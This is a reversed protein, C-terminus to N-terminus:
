RNMVYNLAKGVDSAPLHNKFNHLIFQHLAEAVHLSGTRRILEQCGPPASTKHAQTEIQYIQQIFRLIPLTVQHCATGLDTFKRWVHSHCGGHSATAM